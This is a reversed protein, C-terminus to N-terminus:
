PVSPIGAEAPPPAVMPRPRSAFNKLAKLNLCILLVYGLVLVASFAGLTALASLKFAWSAWTVLAMLMIRFSVWAAEWHNFNLTSLNVAPTSMLAFAAPISMVVAYTGAEAWRPGFLIPVLFPLSASGLVLVGGFGALCLTIKRYLLKLAVPDEHALRAAESWYVNMVASSIASVPLTVLLQAMRYWGTAQTGHLATLVFVPITPALTGIISSWSNYFAFRRYDRAMSRLSNFTVSRLARALESPLKRLYGLVAIANGLVNGCILVWANGHTLAGAGLQFGIQGCSQRLRTKVIVGFENERTFWNALMQTLGALGVALPLMWLYPALRPENLLDAIWHRGLLIMLVVLGITAPLVVLCLLVLVVREDRTKPLPLAQEFRLFALGAFIAVLNLFVANVGTEAPAFVRATIPASVLGVLQVLATGSAM